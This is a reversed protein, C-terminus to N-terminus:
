SPVCHWFYSVNSKFGIVIKRENQMQLICEKRSFRCYIGGGFFLSVIYLRDDEKEYLVDFMRMIYPCPSAQPLNRPWERCFNLKNWTKKCSLIYFIKACLAIKPFQISFGTKKAHLRWVTRKYFSHTARIPTVFAYWPYNDSILTVFSPSQLRHAWVDTEERYAVPMRWSHIDRIFTVSSLWPRNVRILTLTLLRIPTVFLNWPHNDRILTVFLHAYLHWFHNQKYVLHARVDTQEGNNVCQKVFSHLSTSCQAVTHQLTSCHTATHQLTNCHAATTLRNEM